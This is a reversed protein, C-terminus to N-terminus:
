FLINLAPFQLFYLFFSKAKGKDQIRSHVSIQSHLARSIISFDVAPLPIEPSPQSGSQFLIIERRSTNERM